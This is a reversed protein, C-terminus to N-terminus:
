SFLFSPRKSTFSVKLSLVWHLPVCVNTVGFPRSVNLNSNIAAYPTITSNQGHPDRITVGMRSVPFTSSLPTELISVGEPVILVRDGNETLQQPLFGHLWM